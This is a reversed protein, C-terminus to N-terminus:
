KKKLSAFTVDNKKFFIKNNNLYILISVILITFEIFLFFPSSSEFM